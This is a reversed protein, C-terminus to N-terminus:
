LDGLDGLSLPICYIVSIPSPISCSSSHPSFILSLFRVILLFACQYVNTSRPWLLRDEGRSLYRLERNAVILQYFEM